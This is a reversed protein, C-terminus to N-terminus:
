GISQYINGIEISNNSKKELELKLLNFYNEKSQTTDIITFSNQSFILNILIILVIKM